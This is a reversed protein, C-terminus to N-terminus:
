LNLNTVQSNKGSMFSCLFAKIMKNRSLIKSKRKEKCNIWRLTCCRVLNDSLLVKKRNSVM